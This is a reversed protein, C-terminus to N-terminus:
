KGHQGFTTIGVILRQVTWVAHSTCFDTVNMGLRSLALLRTASYGVPFSLSHPWFWLELAAPAAFAAFQLEDEEHIKCLAQVM